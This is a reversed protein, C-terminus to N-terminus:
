DGADRRFAILSAAISPLAAVTATRLDFRLGNLFVSFASWTTLHPGIYRHLAVVMSARSVVLLLMSWLVLHVDAALGSFGRQWSWRAPAPAASAARSSVHPAGRN